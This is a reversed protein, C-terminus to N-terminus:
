LERIKISRFKVPSKTGQIGVHGIAVKGYNLYTKFKSEAVNNKWPESNIKYEVVREGNLWHEVFGSHLVIRVHNWKGLPFSLDTTPEFVDFVSGNVHKMANPHEKTIRLYTSDDLLSYEPANFWIPYAEAEIVRYYIGSNSGEILQYDLKMEFNEFKRKSIIDTSGAVLNGAEDIQWDGMPFSDRNYGRWHNVNKGDFLLEWGIATEDSSLTNSPHQEITTRPFPREESHDTQCSFFCSTLFLSFILKRQCFNKM